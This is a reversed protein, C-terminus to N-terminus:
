VCPAVAGPVNRPFDRAIGGGGYEAAVSVHTRHRAVSLSVLLVYAYCAPPLFGTRPFTPRRRRRWWWRPRGM